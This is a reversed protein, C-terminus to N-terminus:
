GTSLASAPIQCTIVSKPGRGVDQRRASEMAAEAEAQTEYWGLTVGQYDARFRPLTSRLKSDSKDM